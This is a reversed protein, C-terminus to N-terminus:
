NRCSAINDWFDLRCWCSLVGWGVHIQGLWLLDTGQQMVRCGVWQDWPLPLESMQLSQHLFPRGRSSVISAGQFVHIHDSSVCGLQLPTCIYSWLLLPEPWIWRTNRHELVVHHLRCQRIQRILSLTPCCCNNVAMELITLHSATLQWFSEWIVAGYKSSLSSGDGQCQVIMPVHIRCLVINYDVRVWHRAQLHNLAFTSFFSQDAVNHVEGPCQAVFASTDVEAPHWAM